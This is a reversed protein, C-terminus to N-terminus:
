VVTFVVLGIAAASILVVRIFVVTAAVGAVVIGLMIPHFFVVYVEAAVPVVGFVV